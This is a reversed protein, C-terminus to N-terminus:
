LGPEALDIRRPPRGTVYGLFEGCSWSLSMLSLPLLALLFRRRLGPTFAARRAMRGLLVAPLLPSGCAYIWRKGPGWHRLRESAFHRALQYRERLMSSLSGRPLTRVVCEGDVWLQGYRAALAENVAIELYGSDLVGDVSELQDRRYCVSCVTLTPSPGTSCPESYRFFDTFYFAWEAPSAPEEIGVAGGMGAIGEGHGDVLRRIWNDPLDLHDETLLAFRGRSLRLAQAVRDPLDLLTGSSVRREGEGLALDHPEGAAVVLVEVGEVGQQRRLAALCRALLDGGFLSIVVVSAEPRSDTSRLTEMPESSSAM